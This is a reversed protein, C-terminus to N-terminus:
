PFTCVHGKNYNPLIVWFPTSAKSPMITCSNIDHIKSRTKQLSFRLTNPIVGVLDVIDWNAKPKMKVANSQVNICSTSEARVFVSQFSFSFRDTRLM